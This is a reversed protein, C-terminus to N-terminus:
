FVQQGTVAEQALIGATALMALRGNSLEKTQLKNFEAPDKPKLGLPDFGFDGAVRGKRMTYFVGKGGFFADVGNYGKGPYAVPNTEWETSVGGYGGEAMDMGEFTLASPVEHIACLMWFHSWFAYLEVRETTAIAPVDINGGFFPHFKEAVILGLTALMCVRGHKMEAERYFLLKGETCDATFGLPDWFGVPAIAGAMEKAMAATEARAVLVKSKTKADLHSFEDRITARM